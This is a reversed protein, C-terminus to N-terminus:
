FGCFYCNSTLIYFFEFGSIKTARYLTCGSHLCLLTDRLLFSLFVFCFLFVRGLVSGVIHGSILIKLFYNGLQRWWPVLLLLWPPLLAPNARLSISLPSTTFCVTVDSLRVFSARVCAVTCLVGAIDHEAFDALWLLVFALGIGASDGSYRLECLRFHNGLSSPPLKIPLTEIRCSSFVM